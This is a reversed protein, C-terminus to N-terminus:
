SGIKYLINIDSCNLPTVEAFTKRQVHCVQYGTVSNDSKVTGVRPVSTCGPLLFFTLCPLTAYV